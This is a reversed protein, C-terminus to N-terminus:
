SIPPPVLPANARSTFGYPGSTLARVARGQQVRPMSSTVAVAVLCCGGMSQDHACCSKRATDSHPAVPMPCDSPMLSSSAGTVQSPTSGLAVVPGQLGITLIVLFSILRRQMSWLKDRRHYRLLDGPAKKGSRFRKATAGWRGQSQVM